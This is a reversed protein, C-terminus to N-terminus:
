LYGFLVTLYFKRPSRGSKEDIGHAFDVQVRTPLSYYSISDLRLQVGIDRLLGSRGYFPDPHRFSKDWAKGLSGYFAAYLDDFYLHYFRSRMNSWLPFRLLVSTMAAKRGELSYFTYGKMYQIGGLHYDFFDNVREKDDVKENDIWGGYLRFHLATNLPLGIYENWDLEWQNFFLRLYKEELYSTNTQDFEELFFNFMRDYRFLIRRGGRPNVERNQRRKIAAYDYRIGLGIGNGRLCCM